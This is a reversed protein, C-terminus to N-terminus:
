RENLYLQVRNQLREAAKEASVDGAFYPTLEEDLIDYLASAKVNAPHANEVIYYFQKIQEEDIPEKKHFNGDEDSVYLSKRKRRLLLM